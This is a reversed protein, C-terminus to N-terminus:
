PLELEKLVLALEAQLEEIRTELQAKRRRLNSKGQQVVYINTPTLNLKDGSKFHVREDNKLPRGLMEEAVLHHTLVWGGATKTYHYGNRSVRTEGVEAAQGRGM